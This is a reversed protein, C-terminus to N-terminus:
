SAVPTPADKGGEKRGRTRSEALLTTAVGELRALTLASSPGLYIKRLRRGQRHYATWYWGGRQRREKRVTMFGAIWGASWDTLPYAFSTVSTAELWDRWQPRDLRLSASPLTPQELEAWADPCRGYVWVTPISRRM